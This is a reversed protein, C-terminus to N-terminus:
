RRRVPHARDRGSRARPAGVSTALFAPTWRASPRTPWCPSSTTRCSRGTSRAVVVPSGHGTRGLRGRISAMIVRADALATRRTSWAPPRRHRACSRDDLRAVRRRTSSSHPLHAGRGSDALPASRGRVRDPADDGGCGTAAVACCAVAPLAVSGLMRRLRRRDCRNWSVCEDRPPDDASATRYAEAAAAAEGDHWMIAEDITRARGDHLLFRGGGSVTDILGLGGCHLRAGSPARHTTSPDTTPWVRAWTMCCCTPTRISRRTPWSRRHRTAPRRAHALPVGRLGPRDFAQSGDLVDDSTTDRM